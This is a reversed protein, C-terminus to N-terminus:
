LKNIIIYRKIAIVVIHAFEASSLSIKNKKNKESFLIQYKM